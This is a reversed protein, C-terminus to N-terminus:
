EEACQARASLQALPAEPVASKKAFPQPRNAAVMAAMTMVGLLQGRHRMATGANFTGWGYVLTFMVAIVVGAFARRDSGKAKIAKFYCFYFIAWPLTDLAFGVMDLPSSWFRPTPSIWFYLSLYLTNALFQIPNRYTIDSNIYAARGSYYIAGRSAHSTFHDLISRLSTVAGYGGVFVKGYLPAALMAAIVILYIKRNILRWEQKKPSWFIYILFISIWMAVNGHHMLFAPLVMLMAGFFCKMKGTRMWKLLFCFSLMLSSWIIAERAVKISFLLENPLFMYLLVFYRARPDYFDGSAAQIAFFGLFWLLINVLTPAIRDPGTFQFLAYLFPTYNTYWFSFDGAFFRLAASYIDDVNVLFYAFTGKGYVAILALLLRTFFAVLVLRKIMNTMKLRSTSVFVFLTLIAGLFIDSAAYGFDHPLLHTIIWFLPLLACIAVTTLM